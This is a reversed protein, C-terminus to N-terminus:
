QVNPAPICFVDHCNPDPQSQQPQSQGVPKEGTAIEHDIEAIRQRAQIASDRLEQDTPMRGFGSTLEAQCNNLNNRHIGVFNQLRALEQRRKITEEQTAPRWRLLENYRAELGPEERFLEGSAERREVFFHCLLAAKSDFYPAKLIGDATMLIEMESQREQNLRQLEEASVAPKIPVAHAETANPTPADDLRNHEANAVLADTVSQSAASKSTGSSRSIIMVLATLGIGFILVIIGVLRIARSQERRDESM